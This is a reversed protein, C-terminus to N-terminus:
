VYKLIPASVAASPTFKGVRALIQATPPLPTRLRSTPRRRGSSTPCTRRRPSRYWRRSGGRFPATRASRRVLQSLHSCTLLAAHLRKSPHKWEQQRILDVLVNIVEKEFTLIGLKRLDLSPMTANSFSYAFSVRSIGITSAASSFATM